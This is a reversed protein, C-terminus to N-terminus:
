WLVCLVTCTIVSTRQFTDFYHLLLVERLAGEQRWFFAGRNGYLLSGGVDSLEWGKDWLEFTHELWTWHLSEGVPWISYVQLLQHHTTATSFRAIDVVISHV